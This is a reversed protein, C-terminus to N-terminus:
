FRRDSDRLEQEIQARMERELQANTLALPLYDRITGLRMLAQQTEAESSTRGAMAEIMQLRTEMETHHEVAERSVRALRERDARLENELANRTQSRLQSASQLRREVAITERRSSAIIREATLRAALTERYADALLPNRSDMQKLARREAPRLERMFWSLEDATIGDAALRERVNREWNRRYMFIVLVALLGMLAGGAFSVLTLLMYVAMDADAARFYQLLFYSPPVFAFFLFALWPAFDLTKAKLREGPTVKNTQLAEKM